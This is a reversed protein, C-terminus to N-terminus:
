CGPLDVRETVFALLEAISETYRSSDFRALQESALGTYILARDLSSELSNTALVREVVATCEREGPVNKSLDEVLALLDPDEECALLLPLTTKGQLLDNALDKGSQELPSIYDLIDDTIQFAMGFARGMETAAEIDSSAVKALSAGARCCWAFLGATKGSIIQEYGPLSLTARGSRVLQLVEGEAMSSIVRSLEDLLDIDGHKVVIGFARAMMFDGVLVSAANGYVRPAAPVGRRFNGRDVVDDHLLSANHFLETAVSLDIGKDAEAGAAQAMLLLLTPRIRKGGSAILHKAVEPVLEVTSAVAAEIEQEVQHLAGAVLAHARSIPTSPLIEPKRLAEIM